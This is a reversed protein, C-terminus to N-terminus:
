QPHSLHPPSKLSMGAGAPCPGPELGGGTLTLRSWARVLGPNGPCVGQHLSPGRSSCAGKCM